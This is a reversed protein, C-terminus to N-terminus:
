ELSKVVPLSRLDMVEPPKGDRARQMMCRYAHELHKVFAPTNFLAADTRANGLHQKYALLSDPTSLLSHAKAAYETLNHTILDPLNVARLLSAAVRASFTDGQCTLVPVGMWLADSATTHANYPLTDLVLDAHSLRALHSAMDVRPAFIIRESSVGQQQAWQQLNKRAAAHCDLLWLVSDEHTRLLAMWVAFIDPLIKFAQNFCCLVRAQDPLQCAARNPIPGCPRLRDNPQYCDPMIVLAEAFFAAHEPPTV